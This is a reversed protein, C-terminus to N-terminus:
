DGYAEAFALQLSAPQAELAEQVPVVELDPYRESARGLTAIPGVIRQLRSPVRGNLRTALFSILHVLPPPLAPPSRQQAARALAHEIHQLTYPNRDAVIVIDPVDIDTWTAISALARGVVHSSVLSKLTSGPVVRVYRRNRIARYLRGINGRDGPGYVTALRVVTLHFGLRQALSRLGQEARSKSVAYPTALGGEELESVAVSSVFVFRGFSRSGSLARALRLTEEVNVRVMEEQSADPRHVVAAAHVCAGFPHDPPLFDPLSALDAKILRSHPEAPCKPYRARTVGTVEVSSSVLMRVTARGVVGTAGTVLVKRPGTPENM